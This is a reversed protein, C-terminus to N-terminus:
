ALQKLQESVHAPNEVVASEQNETEVVTKQPQIVEVNAKPKYVRAPVIVTRENTFPTTLYNFESNKISRQVDIALVEMGPKPAGKSRPTKDATLYITRVCNESRPRGVSRKNIVAGANEATAGVNTKPNLNEM